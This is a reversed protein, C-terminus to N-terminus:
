CEEKGEYIDCLPSYICQQCKKQNQQFPAELAFSRIQCVLKELRSLEAPGPISVPYRKNDILSHFFLASVSYGMEVLCVYHAYLQFLYGEYIKKIQTKREIVKKELQDYIDIKGCLKYKLSYVDYDLLYRKATSYSGNEISAHRAKGRVQAERHYLASQYPSYLQHYYISRPCFTFDNLFAIPLYSEM